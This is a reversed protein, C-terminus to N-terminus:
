QAQDAKPVLLAEEVVRERDLTKYGHDPFFVTVRDQEVRMLTGEGFTEHVVTEHTRFVGPGENGTATPAMGALCNDCSGCPSPYDEGFYALLFQRRCGTTEAFGRMMEVRSREVRELAEVHGTAQAIVEGLGESGAVALGRGRRELAGVEILLNVAALGRRPTLGTVRRLAAMSTAGERAAELSAALDQEQVSMTSFFRRLSLDEPRYHLVTTAPEGDRGARGIEQYYSDLSGPPAAHVVFRVDPKDVGMGFASTAVVVEVAGESFAHQAAEREEATMGAHYAAARVGRDRLEAAYQDTDRRRAVYVLGAAGGPLEAALEVVHELVAHSLAAAATERRVELSLNPRDFGHSVVVADRLGLREVIEERVPPAATATLAIVVPHGLREIVPGLALYAPRFDHGWSSVCHAEDVVFLSPRLAAVRELVDDNALQEPSLFLFEAEGHSMAEWSEGRQEATQSSNLAVADPADPADALGDVQDHQLAILPSVVVTPRALFSGTVQYIASKGYGTPMVALVDRGGAAAEM